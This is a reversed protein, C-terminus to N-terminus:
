SCAGCMVSRNCIDQVGDLSGNTYWVFRCLSRIILPQLGFLIGYFLAALVSIVIMNIIAKERFTMIYLGFTVEYQYYKLRFYDSIKPPISLNLGLSSSPSKTNLMHFITMNSSFYYPNSPGTSDVFRPFPELVRYEAAM